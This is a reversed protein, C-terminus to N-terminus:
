PERSEPLFSPRSRYGFKEAFRLCESLPKVGNSSTPDTLSAAAACVGYTLAVDMPTGEHLGLLVGAAFADGAGLTGAIRAQPMNVSAQLLEQGDSGMAIAGAPFHIVVWERVGAALLEHSAKRASALDIENDRVIKIGTTREAEFENLVCYDCYRLAPCVIGAFRDSDESVLDVSTKFGAKRARHLVAAAVTGYIPDHLDLQDLLLLYGLYFVRANSQEFDFHTADLLANAGRQHFFTRRGTSKVTMVDTYSTPAEKSVHLQRTDIHHAHCDQRIYEGAEDAGVLGVAALPFPADLRALDKLVNYPGGGNSSTEALINALADQAPYVDIIKTHDLLWNGGALIGNRASTTM